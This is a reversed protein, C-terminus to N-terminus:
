HTVIVRPKKTAISKNVAQVFDVRLEGDADKEYSKSYDLQTSNGESLYIDHINEDYNYGFAVDVGDEVRFDLQVTGDQNFAISYTDLLDLDDVKEITNSDEISIKPLSASNEDTFILNLKNNEVDYNRSDQSKTANSNSFLFIENQDKDETYEVAVGERVEHTLAYSGDFNRKIKFSELMKNNTEDPNLMVEEPSCSVLLLTIAAFGLLFHKM